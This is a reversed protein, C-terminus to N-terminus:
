GPNRVSDQFPSGRASDLSHTVLLKSGHPPERGHGAFRISVKGQPVEARLLEVAGEVAAAEDGVGAEAGDAGQLLGQADEGFEGSPEGVGAGVLVDRVGHFGEEGLLDILDEGAVGAV